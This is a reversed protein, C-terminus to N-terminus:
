AGGALTRYYARPKQTRGNVRVAGWKENGVAHAAKLEELTRVGARRCKERYMAAAETTTIRGTRVLFLAQRSLCKRWERATFSEQVERAIKREKRYEDALKKAEDLPGFDREPWQLRMNRLHNVAELNGRRNNLGDNDKHHGEVKPDTLGLIVRHIMTTRSQKPEGGWVKGQVYWKEKKGKARNAFWTTSVGSVLELDGADILCERLLKERYDWVKLVVVGDERVEYDNKM